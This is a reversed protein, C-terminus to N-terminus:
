RSRRAAPLWRSIEWCDAATLPDKAAGSLVNGALSNRAHVSGGRVLNSLTTLETVAAGDDDGKRVRCWDSELAQLEALGIHLAAEICNSEANM